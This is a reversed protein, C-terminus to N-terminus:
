LLAQLPVPPSTPLDQVTVVTGEAELRRLVSAEDDSLYLYRLRERRGPGAHIGGLNVRRLVGEGDTVLSAMTDVDGTLLFVRRADADWGRLRLLAEERTVFDIAVERPVAMRYIEQEWPSRGVTDDVLVILDVGLPVGWGIVVQGHILRDDVRCLTIAM